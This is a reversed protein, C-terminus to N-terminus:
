FPPEGDDSSTLLATFRDLSIRLGILDYGHNALLPTLQDEEADVWDRLCSLLDALEAADTTIMSIAPM